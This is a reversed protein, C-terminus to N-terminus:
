FADKIMVRGKEFLSFVPLQKSIDRNITAELVQGDCVISDGVIDSLEHPPILFNDNPFRVRDVTFDNLRLLLQKDKEIYFLLYEYLADRYKECSTAKVRLAEYCNDSLVKTYRKRLQWAPLRNHFYRLNLMVIALLPLVTLLKLLISLLGEEGSLYILFLIFVLVSISLTLSIIPYRKGLFDNVEKLHGTLKDRHQISLPISESSLMEEKIIGL